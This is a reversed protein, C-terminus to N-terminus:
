GLRDLWASLLRPFDQIYWRILFDGFLTHVLAAPTLFCGFPLTEGLRVRRLLLMPVAYLSGLIAGLFLTVLVGPLGFCSGVALMLKLDGGGMAEKRFVLRGALALALFLGFGVAAAIASHIWRDLGTDVLFPGFDLDLQPNWWAVALGYGALPLTMLDPLLLEDLDTFFLALLTSVMPLLLITQLTMGYRWGVALWLFATALEILPYRMSITERCASCKGALVVWGFVPVNHRAKIPTQCRPCYSRPSVISMGRPIRYICVNLFSGVAAGVLPLGLWWEWRVLDHITM